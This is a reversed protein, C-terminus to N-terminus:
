FIRVYTEEELNLMELFSKEIGYTEEINETTVEDVVNKLTEAEAKISSRIIEM